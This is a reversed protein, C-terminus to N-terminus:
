RTPQPMTSAFRSCNTRARVLGSIASFRGFKQAFGTFDLVSVGLGEIHAAMALVAGVTIVGTGGVGTVMLDYPQDLVPMAPVPLAEAQTLLATINAVRRRRQGGEITVFSPCFGELCSFDKNCTSLNIRRKRRLANGETEVSLCNSAVSCDGCGECVLDNIM